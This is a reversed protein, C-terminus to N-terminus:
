EGGGDWWDADGGDGTYVTLEGYPTYEYREIISGSTDLIATVCYLNNSTYYFQEEADAFDGDDNTDSRGFFPEDIYIFRCALTYSSTESTNIESPTTSKLHAKKGM